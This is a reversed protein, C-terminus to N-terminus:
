SEYKEEREIIRQKRKEEINIAQKRIQKERM